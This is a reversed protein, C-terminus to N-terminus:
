ELVVHSVEYLEKVREMVNDGRHSLLKQDEEHKKGREKKPPYNSLAAFRLLRSLCEGRLRAWWHRRWLFKCRFMTGLNNIALSQLSDLCSLFLHHLEELLTLESTGQVEEPCELAISTVAV